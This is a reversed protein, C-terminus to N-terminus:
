IEEIEINYKKEFLKKKLKYLDTKFGKVDVVHLKNDETSIYSFDARYTIKRRTKGNIKFSEQLLYEKQLELDQIIGQKLLIKLKQYYEGEKKSDFKIGDIVVKKSYYKSRKIVKKWIMYTNIYRTIFIEQIM